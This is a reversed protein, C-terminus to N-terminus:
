QKRQWGVSPLVVRGIVEKPLEQPSSPLPLWASGKVGANAGVAEPSHTKEMKRKQLREAQAGERKSSNEKRKASM